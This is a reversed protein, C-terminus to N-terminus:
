RGPPSPPIVEDVLLRETSKYLDRVVLHYRNPDGRRTLIIDVSGDALASQSMVNFQGRALTERVLM